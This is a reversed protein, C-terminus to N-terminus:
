SRANRMRWGLLGLGALVMTYTEPEPIPRITLWTADDLGGNNPPTVLLGEFAGTAGNFRTVNGAFANSVFLNGEPTFVLGANDGTTENLGQGQAFVDLFMGTTGDYRIISDNGLSNVYLNGDPGFAFQAPLSLGGGSAFTGMLAGSAGNFRLIESNPLQTSVYLNGDSGFKLEIPVSSPVAAFVNLFAGSSADYRIINGNGESAVYLKGDLGFAVGAPYQLGGGTAATGLLAGTPSYRLVANGPISSVYFNGDPGFTHGAPGAVDAFIGLFAGTSSDYELVSNTNFSSVLLSAYSPFAVFCLTVVLGIIKKM